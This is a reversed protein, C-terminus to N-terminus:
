EVVTEFFFSYLSTQYKTSLAVSLTYAITDANTNLLSGEEDHTIACFVPVIDKDLLDSIFDANVKSPTPDGVFGFDVPVPSRRSAPIINADVGSLGIANCGNKQLLAVINKNIWGAYVMTVLKLTEADTVRRGQIMTTKVGLDIAMKSAMVGGGHVLVKKGELKHFESLFTALAEPNDVVNGGIKVVRITEKQNTNEVNNM